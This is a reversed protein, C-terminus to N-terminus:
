IKDPIDEAMNKDAQISAWSDISNAAADFDQAFPIM